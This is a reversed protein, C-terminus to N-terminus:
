PPALCTTLECRSASVNCTFGPLCSLSNRCSAGAGGKAVCVNDQCSSKAADCINGAAGCPAGVAAPKQCTPPSQVGAVMPGPSCRFADQCMGPLSAICPSAAGRRAACTSGDCYLDLRCVAGSAANCPQGLSALPQCQGAVCSLGGGCEGKRADCLEGQKKPAATLVCRMQDCVARPNECPSVLGQFEAPCEGGVAVKPQCLGNYAYATSLCQGGPPLAELTATRASCIGPCSTASIACYDSGICDGDEFCSGNRAVNPRYVEFCVAPNGDLTSCNATSQYARLCAAAASLDFVQRGSKVASSPCAFQILSSTCGSRQEFLGCSTALTCSSGFLQECFASESLAAMGGGSGGGLNSSDGGGNGGAVAGITIGSGGDPSQASDIPTTCAQGAWVAGCFMLIQGGRM